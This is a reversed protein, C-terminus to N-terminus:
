HNDPGREILSERKQLVKSENDFCTALCYVINSILFLLVPQDQSNRQWWMIIQITSAIAISSMIPDPKEFVISVNSNGRDKLLIILTLLVAGFNLITLFSLVFRFGFVSKESGSFDTQMIWQIAWVCLMVIWTIINIPAVTRQVKFLSIM